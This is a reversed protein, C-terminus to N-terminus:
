PWKKLEPWVDRLNWKFGRCHYIPKWEEPRSLPVKQSGIISYSSCKTQMNREIGEGLVIMSEGM